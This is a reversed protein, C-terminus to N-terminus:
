GSAPRGRCIGGLRPSWGGLCAEKLLTCGCAAKFRLNPPLAKGGAIASAVLIAVRTMNESRRLASGERTSRQDGPGARGGGRYKPRLRIAKIAIGM